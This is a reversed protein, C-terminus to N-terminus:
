FKLVCNTFTHFYTNGSLDDIMLFKQYNMAKKYILIQEM